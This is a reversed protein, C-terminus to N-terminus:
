IAKVQIPAKEKKFYQILWMITFTPIFDLGPMLEEIFNFVGGFLGKTGGFIRWFIFASIPAWIIDLFEGFFPVTFSAYGIFDMLLCLALSPLKQEIAVPANKKFFLSKM